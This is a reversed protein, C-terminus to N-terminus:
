RSTCIAPPTPASSSVQVGVVDARTPVGPTPALRCLSTEGIGDGVAGLYSSYLKKAEAMKKKESSLQTM